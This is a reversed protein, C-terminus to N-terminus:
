VGFALTENAMREFLIRGELHKTLFALYNPHLRALDDLRSESVKTEATAAKAREIERCSALTVKRWHECFGFNGYLASLIEPALEDPLPPLVAIPEPIM